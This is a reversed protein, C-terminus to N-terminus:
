TLFHGPDSAKMRSKRFDRVNRTAIGDLGNALGVAEQVADEFDGIESKLAEEFVRQDLNGLRCLKLLAAVMDRARSEGLTKRALYHLTTVTNPSIWGEIEGAEIRALLAASNPWHPERMLWVDLVINTDILLKM